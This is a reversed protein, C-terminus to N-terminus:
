RGAELRLLTLWFDRHDRAWAGIIEFRCLYLSAVSEQM